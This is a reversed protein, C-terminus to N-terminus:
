LAAYECVSNFACYKCSFGPNAPFIRDFLDPNRKYRQLDQQLKKAVSSLEIYMSKIAQPSASRPESAVQKELNYFSAIAKHNPYLHKAALLYVYAQRLDFDSKGTKFDLIHITNDPELLVCDFAAYLAFTLNGYKIPIPKPYSGDGRSLEAVNRDLLIPKQYYNDLISEVRERVEDSEQSLRLMEAVKRVGDPESLLQINQHFEYVGRQALHGIKQATNDVNVLEKILPEKKRARSYGRKRDCHWHEKGIPPSIQSWSTYSVNYRWYKGM